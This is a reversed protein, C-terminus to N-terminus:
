CAAARADVIHFREKAAGVSSCIASITKHPVVSQRNIIRKFLLAAADGTLYRDSSKGLAPDCDM